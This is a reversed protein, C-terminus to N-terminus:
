CLHSRQDARTVYLPNPVNAGADALSRWDTQPQQMPTTGAKSVYLPNPVNAGADALSRWDTQPQQMPTTGGTDTRSHQQGGSM